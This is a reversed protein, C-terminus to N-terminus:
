AAPDAASPRAARRPRGSSLAATGASAHTGTAHDSACTQSAAAASAAERSPRGAHGPTTGGM